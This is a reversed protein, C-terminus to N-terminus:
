GAWSSSNQRSGASTVVVPALQWVGNGQQVWHYGPPATWIGQDEPPYDARRQEEAIM